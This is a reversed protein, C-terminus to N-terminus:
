LITCVNFAFYANCVVKSCYFGNWGFWIIFISPISMFEKMGDSFYSQIASFKM